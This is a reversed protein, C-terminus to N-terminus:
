WPRSRLSSSYKALVGVLISGEIPIAEAIAVIDFLLSDGDTKMNGTNFNRL